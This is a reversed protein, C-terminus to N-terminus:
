RGVDTEGAEAAIPIQQAPVHAIRAPAAPRPMSKLGRLFLLRKLCKDIMEDLKGRTEIEEALQEESVGIEVLGCAEGLEERTKANAIKWVSEDGLLTTFEREQARIALVRKEALKAIRLIDLRDRRWVFRAMNAVIHDELAGEPALEAVLSQHLSDFAVEDEGPLLTAVSYAGHKLAPPLHATAAPM